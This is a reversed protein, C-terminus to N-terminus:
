ICTYSVRRKTLVRCNLCYFFNLRKLYFMYLNSFQFEDFCLIGTNRGKLITFMWACMNSLTIDDEEM